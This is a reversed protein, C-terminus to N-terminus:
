TGYYKKYHRAGYYSFVYGEYKKAAHHNVYNFAVGAIKRHGSMKEVCDRVLVRATAGWRVVLVVKDCVQAIVVPDVVPGMPPSDVVVLDYTQKFADLTSKMRLSGLLDTPNQTKNGAALVWYGTNEQFRVVDELSAEGMLFDVLGNKEEMDFLRTAAPHRLDADIFLVRLKASAASAALSLAIATKGESPVASTVQVVKPPQDVDAMQIGSRLWRISEGYKSLPKVLPYDHIPVAKGNVRLQRSGVRNVTTLVPVGLLNEIQRPTTFGVDLKEKALAGGVGLCLGIFLSVLMYQTQQPYSASGPRLAPTIVRAEQPEFTAQEQTIKAQKLFDEYLTKNVAATRELDRLRIATADDLNTQGTAENLSKELSSVRAQALQYESRVRAALRQKEIAIAREVDRIKARINVVLPYSDGFRALLDAEQVSLTSAQQRLAPLDGADAIDPMSEISRGKAELSNLLEVRSKKQALEAKADILKANFESLQQQTLTLNGSQVLGHEARFDAVAEESQRLQKRLGVLRDGLWDTARKAAEYRTDLKDVLFANAVANALQAARTPDPSTVSISLVYPQEPDRTVKLSRKLADIAAIEGSPFPSAEDVLPAPKVEPKAEEPWWSEVVGRVSALASSIFSPVSIDLPPSQALAPETALHEREVVRRLLVSSRLVAIQSEVMAMNLQPDSFIADPGVAKERQWDLLVQCTATYFPTQTLMYVSGVLLAIGTVAAIFKWQRWLFSLAKRLDFGQEVETAESAELLLHRDIM